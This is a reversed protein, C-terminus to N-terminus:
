RKSNTGESPLVADIFHRCRDCFFDDTTLNRFNKNKVEDSIKDIQSKKLIRLRSIFKKTAYTFKFTKKIRSYWKWNTCGFCWISKTM